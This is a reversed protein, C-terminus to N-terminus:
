NNKILLFGWIAIFVTYYINKTEPLTDKRIINYFSGRDFLAEVTKTNGDLSEIIVKQIPKMTM